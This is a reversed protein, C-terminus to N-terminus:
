SSSFPTETPAKALTRATRAVCESFANRKKGYRAAYARPRQRRLKKCDKTADVVLKKRLAFSADIKGSVCEGFGNAKLLGVGYKQKFAEANADREAKCDAAARDHIAEQHRVEVRRCKTFTRSRKRTSYVARFTPAGVAARLQKCMTVAKHEDAPAPAAVARLTFSLVALAAMAIIM